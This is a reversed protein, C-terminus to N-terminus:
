KFSKVMKRVAEDYVARKSEEYDIMFTIYAGQASRMTKQYFIKGDKRGSLAFFGKGITKYTVNKAGRENILAEYEKQLTKNLLLNSGFVLMALCAVASFALGKLLNSTIKRSRFM